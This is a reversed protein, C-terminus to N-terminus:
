KSRQRRGDTVAMGVVAVVCRAESPPSAKAAAAVDFRLVRVDSRSIMVCVGCQFHKRRTDTGSMVRSANCLPGGSSMLDSEGNSHWLLAGSMDSAPDFVPAQSMMAGTVVDALHYSSNSVFPLVLWRNGECLVPWEHPFTASCHGDATYRLMGM